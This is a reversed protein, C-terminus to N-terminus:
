KKRKFEFKRFILFLIALVAFISLLIKWPLIWFSVTDTDSENGYGRYLSVKATYRGFSFGDNWRVERYRLSDPLAFYGDVPLEDVVKGLLNKITITGSPVLHVNGDNRFLIEFGEPRGEYFLKKPGILKLDELQGSEKGLGNVRVLLLSGIRSILKSKGETGPDVQGGADASPQNSVVIAGYYGRPEATEPISVQVPISIKEGFNLTFESIEPKVLNKLSYPGVEDGLLKVPNNSDETGVFDEIVIKFTVKKNVRNTVTINKKISEGPNLFIETKGPEVVFDNTNDVTLQTRVVDASASVGMFAALLFVSAKLITKQIGTPSAM